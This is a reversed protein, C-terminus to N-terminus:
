SFIENFDKQQTPNFSTGLKTFSSFGIEKVLLDPFNDPRLALRSKRKISVNNIDGEKIGDNKRAAKSYTDWSQPELILVGGKKLVSWCKKFFLRLGSDGHKVHIWKTISLALVTDYTEDNDDEDIEIIPMTSLMLPATVPFYDIENDKLLAAKVAREKRAKVVLRPDVDIGVVKKPECHLAIALSVMGANCGIDLVTKGKLCHLPLLQLRPDITLFTNRRTYYSSYNGLSADAQTTTSPHADSEASAEHIHVGLKDSSDELSDSQPRRQPQPKTKLSRPVLM